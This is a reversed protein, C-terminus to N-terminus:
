FCSCDVCPINLKIDLNMYIGGITQGQVLNQQLCEEGCSKTYSSKELVCKEEDSIGVPQEMATDKWCATLGPFGQIICSSANGM